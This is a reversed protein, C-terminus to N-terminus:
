NAEKQCIDCVKSDNPFHLTTLLNLCKVCMEYDLKM